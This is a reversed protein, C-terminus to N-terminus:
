VDRIYIYISVNGGDMEMEMDMAGDFTGNAIEAIRSGVLEIKYINLTSKGVVPDVVVKVYLVPTM